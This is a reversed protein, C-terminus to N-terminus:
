RRLEGELVSLVEEVNDLNKIFPEGADYPVTWTTKRAAKFKRRRHIAERLLDNVVEGLGAEREKRIRKIEVAVDDDLKLTTRKAGATNRHSAM